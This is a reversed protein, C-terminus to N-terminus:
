KKRTLTEPNRIYLVAQVLLENETNELQKLLTPENTQKKLEAIQKLTPECSDIITNIILYKEDTAIKQWKELDGNELYANARRTQTEYKKKKDFFEQRYQNIVVYDSSYAVMKGIIPIDTSTLEGTGIASKIGNEIFGSTKSITKTLGGLYGEIM